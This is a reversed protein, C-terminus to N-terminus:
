EIPSSPAGSKADAIADDAKKKESKREKAKTRAAQTRAKKSWSQPVYMVRKTERSYSARRWGFLETVEELTKATVEDGLQPCVRPLTTVHTEPTVKVKRRKAM